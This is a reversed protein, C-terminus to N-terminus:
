QIYVDIKFVYQVFVNMLFLQFIDAALIKITISVKSFCSQFLMWHKKLWTKAIWCTSHLWASYNWYTGKIDCLNHLCMNQDELVLWFFENYFAVWLCTENGLTHLAVDCYSHFCPLVSTHSEWSNNINGMYYECDWDCSHQCNMNWIYINQIFPLTFGTQFIHVADCSHFFFTLLTFM